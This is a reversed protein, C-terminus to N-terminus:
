YLLISKSNKSNIVFFTLLISSFYVFDYRLTGIPSFLFHWFILLSYFILVFKISNDINNSIILKFATSFLNFFLYILICFAFIGAYAFYGFIISHARIYNTFIVNNSKTIYALELSYKGYKDNGWSGHGLFPKDVISSFLVPIESRGYYLLEFPNFKNEMKSFQTISNTGSIIRQSVSYSYLIFFLYFLLSCILVRFFSIKINNDIIYKIILSFLLILGNSRADLYFCLIIYSILLTFSFKYYKFKNFLYYVCLFFPNLFPVFKIKFYNTNDINVDTNFILLNSLSLFFLFFIIYFSRKNLLITLSTISILSFIIVSWGRIFNFYSTGNYIDSIVQVLLLGTLSIFIKKYIEIKFLEKVLSYNLFIFLISFIESALIQGILSIQVQTFITYIILFITNLRILFLNKYEL